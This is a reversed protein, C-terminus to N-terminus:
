GEQLQNNRQHFLCPGSCGGGAAPPRARSVRGWSCASPTSLGSAAGSGGTEGHSELNQTSHAMFFTVSGWIAGPSDM